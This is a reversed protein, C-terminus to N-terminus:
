QMAIEPNLQKEIATLSGSKHTFQVYARVMLTTCSLCIALSFYSIFVKLLFAASKMHDVQTAIKIIGVVIGIGLGLGITTVIMGLLPWLIVYGIFKFFNGKMLERSRKFAKEATCNELVVFHQALAHVIAFWIGPLILCLTCLLTGFNFLWQAGFMQWEPRRAFLEPHDQAEPILQCYTRRILKAALFFWPIGQMFIWVILLQPYNISMAVATVLISTAIPAEKIAQFILAYSNFWDKVFNLEIERGAFNPAPLQNM